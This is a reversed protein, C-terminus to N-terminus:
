MMKTLGSIRDEVPMSLLETNTAVQRAAASPESIMAVTAFHGIPMAGPMPRLAKKAKPTTPAMPKVQCCASPATNMEPKIKRSRVTVPIRLQSIAPMGCEMRLAIAAPMPKNRAIMASFLEPMTMALSAVKTWSPWRLVVPGSSAMRPKKMMAESSPSLTGPAMRIPMRTMVTRDINSPTLWKWPM